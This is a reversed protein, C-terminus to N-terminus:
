PSQGGDTVSPWLCLWVGDVVGTLIKRYLNNGSSQTHLCRANPIKVLTPLSWHGQMMTTINPLDGQTQLNLLVTFPPITAHPTSYNHVPNIYHVVSYKRLTNMNPPPSPHLIQNLYYYYDCSHPTRLLRLPTPDRAQGTCSPPRNQYRRGVFPNPIRLSSMWWFIESTSQILYRSTSVCHHKTQGDPDDEPRWFCIWPTHFSMTTRWSIQWTVHAFM